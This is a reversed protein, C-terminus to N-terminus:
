GGQCIDFVFVFVFVFVFFVRGGGAFVGRPRGAAIEGAFAEAGEGGRHDSAGAGSGGRECRSNYEAAFLSVCLMMALDTKDSGCM